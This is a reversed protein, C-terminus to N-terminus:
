GTPPPMAIPYVDADFFASFPLSALLDAVEEENTAFVELFVTARTPALHHAGIRGAAHLHELREHEAARLTALEELDTDARMTAVVIFTRDTDAEASDVHTAM